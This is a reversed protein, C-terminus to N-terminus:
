LEAALWPNAALVRRGRPTNALRKAARALRWPAHVLQFHMADPRDWEGGWEVLGRYVKVLRRRIRSVQARTLTQLTEVGMPHRTANLDIARGGAHESWTTTTGRQPRFAWGWEDWVGVDLREVEEHFWLALHGLILAGPGGAVILHRGTGPIVLKRTGETSPVLPWGNPTRDTM